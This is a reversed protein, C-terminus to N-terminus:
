TAESKSIIAEVELGTLRGRLSLDRAVAKVQREYSPDKLMTRRLAKYHKQWHQRAAKRDGACVRGGGTPRRMLCCVRAVIALDGGAGSLLANVNHVKNVGWLREAAHGAVSIRIREEPTPLDDRCWHTEGDSQDFSRAHKEFVVVQKLSRGTRVAEVAHGSEHVCLNWHVRCGIAHDRELHRKTDEDVDAALISEQTRSAAMFEYVTLTRRTGSM